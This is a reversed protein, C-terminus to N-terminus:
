WSSVLDRLRSQATDLGRREADDGLDLGTAHIFQLDMVGMFRFAYRLGPELCDWGEFPSGPGYEVGHTTIFLVMKGESLGRFQGNVGHVPTLM